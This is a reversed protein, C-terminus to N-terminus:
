GGLFTGALFPSPAAYAVNQSNATGLWRSGIRQGRARPNANPNIRGHVGAWVPLSDAIDAFGYSSKIPSPSPAEVPRSLAIDNYVGGPSFTAHTRDAVMVRRESMPALPEQNTRPETDTPASHDVAGGDPVLGPPSLMPRYMRGM